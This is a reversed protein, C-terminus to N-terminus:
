ELHQLFAIDQESLINSGLPDDAATVYTAPLDRVGAPGKRSSSKAAAQQSRISQAFLNIQRAIIVLSDILGQTKEKSLLSRANCRNLWYKAEFLSGRAYYLFTLKEGYNYRGFGEAINAGISDAARVLQEGVTRRAFQDWEGVASWIADALTEAARLVRLDTDSTSM